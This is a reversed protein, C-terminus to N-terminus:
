ASEINPLDVLGGVTDNFEAGDALRGVMKRDNSNVVMLGHFTRQISNGNADLSTDMSGETGMNVLAPSLNVVYDAM